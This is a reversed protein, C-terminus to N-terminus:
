LVLPPFFIMMAPLIFLFHSLFDPCKKLTHENLVPNGEAESFLVGFRAGEPTNLLLLYKGNKRAVPYAVSLGSQRLHNVIEIEAEIAVEDIDKRAYIKFFFSQNGNTCRYIDNVGRYEFACAANQPFDSYNGRIKDLIDAAVITSRVIRM